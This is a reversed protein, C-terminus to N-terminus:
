PLRLCEAFQQSLEVHQERALNQRTRGRIDNHIKCVRSCSYCKNDKMICELFETSVFKVLESYPGSASSRTDLSPTGVNFTITDGSQPDSHLPIGAVSHKDGSLRLRRTTDCANHCMWLSKDNSQFINAAWASDNTWHWCLVDDQKLM